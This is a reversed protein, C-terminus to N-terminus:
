GLPRPEGIVLLSAHELGDVGIGVPDSSQDGLQEVHRPDLCPPDLHLALKDVERGARSAHYSAPDRRPLRLASELDLNGGPQWLSPKVGVLDVLDERVENLIRDPVTVVTISDACTWPSGPTTTETRSSPGPIAGSNAGRTNRCNQRAFRRPPAPRPRNM